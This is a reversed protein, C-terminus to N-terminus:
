FTGNQDLDENEYEEYKSNLESKLDAIEYNKRIIKTSLNIYNFFAFCNDLLISVLAFQVIVSNFANVGKTILLYISISFVLLELAILIFLTTKIKKNNILQKLYLIHM